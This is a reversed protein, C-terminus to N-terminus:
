AGIILRLAVVLDRMDQATGISIRVHNDIRPKNFYRILIGVGKLKEYLEKAAMQSHSAFLFNAKSPLVVFGLQRLASATQERIAIIERRTRAFYEEDEFSAKAGAIALRDLTYSNFSDKIRALAQILQPNALAFGVRLGALSRSKSLTQVIVLNEYTTLLPIASEGGFDIYAEDVVIVSERNNAVIAEVEGLSLAVGTPANPNAIIIGGNPPTFAAGVINFDAELPVKRYKVSFLESYVEYFSYTIDNFLIPAKGVFFAPYCFALIEDSGNGVFVMEPKIGFYRAIQDRLEDAMPPPYLRLENCARAIAAIVASSPPFPNENTNLKIYGGDQPQEGPIYPKISSVLDSWYKM